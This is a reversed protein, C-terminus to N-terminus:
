LTTVMFIFNLFMSQHIGKLLRLKSVLISLMIVLFMLTIMSLLSFTNSKYDSLFLPYVTGGTIDLIDVNIKNVYSNSLLDSSSDIDGSQRDLINLDITVSKNLHVGSGSATANLDAENVNFISAFEFLGTNYLNDIDSYDYAM